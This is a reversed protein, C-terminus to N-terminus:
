VNTMEDKIKTSIEIIFDGYKSVIDDILSTTINYKSFIQHLISEEEALSLLTAKQKDEAKPNSMSLLYVDNLQLFGSESAHYYYAMFKSSAVGCDTGATSATSSDGNADHVNEIKYVCDYMDIFSGIKFAADKLIAPCFRYQHYEEFGAQVVWQNRIEDSYLLTALRFVWFKNKEIKNETEIAFEEKAKDQKDKEKDNKKKKEEQLQKEKENGKRKRIGNQTEDFFIIKELDYWIESMVTEMQVTDTANDFYLAYNTMFQQFNKNNNVLGTQSQGSRNRNDKKSDGDQTKTDLDTENNAVASAPSKRDISELLRACGLLLM